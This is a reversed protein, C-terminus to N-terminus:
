AIEARLVDAKYERRNHYMRVVCSRKGGDHACVHMDVGMGMHARVFDSLCIHVCLILYPKPKARM